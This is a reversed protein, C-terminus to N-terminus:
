DRGYGAIARYQVGGEDHEPVNRGCARAPVGRRSLSEVVHRGIQGTAGLVAVRAPGALDARAAPGSSAATSRTM